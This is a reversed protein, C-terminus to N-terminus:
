AITLETDETVRLMFLQFPVNIRSATSESLSETNDLFVPYFQNHFRQLGNIIDVKGLIERGLNASKSYEFGDILLRCSDRVEGNKLTEFLIFDVIEFHKNIDAVLMENKKMSITKLQELIKEADARKQEYNVQAQRLEDIQEDIHSNNSTKAIEIELNHIQKELISISSSIEAKRNEASKNASIISSNTLKLEEIANEVEEIQVRIDDVKESSASVKDELDAKESSADKGRAIVDILLKKKHAEFDAMMKEQASPDYARGCTPCSLKSTDFKMQTIKKWEEQLEKVAKAKATFDRSHKKQLFQEDSLADNLSRLKSKLEDHKDDFDSTDKLVIGDRETILDSIRVKFDEIQTELMSTDITQRASELGTIQAHLIEGKDGYVEKIKRLTQKQLAEIEDLKYNDLMDAVEQCDECAMAIGKDTVTSAMEFLTQRKEAAKESVFIDPCSLTSMLNFDVGLETFYEIFASETKPVGNITYTNSLSVRAGKVAMNQMKCVQIPKGDIEIDETVSVTCEEAGIMRIPPNSHLAYDKDFWLWNHATALTTKGSGNQGSIVVKETFNNHTANKVGMFNELTMGKITMKM